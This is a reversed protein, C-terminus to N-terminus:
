HFLLPLMLVQRLCSAYQHRAEIGGGAAFTTAGYFLALYPPAVTSQGVLSKILVTRWDRGHGLFRDLLRFGVHFYPGHMAAGIVGFSLTRNRSQASMLDIHIVHLLAYRRLNYTRETKDWQEATQATVDSVLHLICSTISARAIAAMM